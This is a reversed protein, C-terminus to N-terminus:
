ARDRTWVTRRGEQGQSALPRWQHALDPPILDGRQQDLFSVFLGIAGQYARRTHQSRGAAQLTEAVLEGLPRRLAAGPGSASTEIIADLRALADM